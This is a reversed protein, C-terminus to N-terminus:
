LPGEIRKEEGDKWKSIVRRAELPLGSYLVNKVIGLTEPACEEESILEAAAGASFLTLNVADGIADKAAKVPLGAWADAIPNYRGAREDDEVDDVADIIYICRGVGTGIRRAIRSLDGELGHAFIEGLIEGFIAEGSKRESETMYLEALKDRVFGALTGDVNARRLHGRAAPRVARVALRKIGREDRVDDDLKYLTLLASVGAAYELQRGPEMMLRPRLKFCRRRCLDYKEGTLAMRVMILFVMDYSLAAASTIGLKKRMTRCLGCYAARYYEAERVRLEPADIRVYGFM